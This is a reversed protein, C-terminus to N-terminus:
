WAIPLNQYNVFAVGGSGQRAALMKIIGRASQEPKLPAGPGGM